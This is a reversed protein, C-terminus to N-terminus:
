GQKKISVNLSSPVRSTIIFTERFQDNDPDNRTRIATQVFNPESIVTKLYSLLSLIVFPRSMVDEKTSVNNILTRYFNINTQERM